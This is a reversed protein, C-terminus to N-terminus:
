EKEKKFYKSHLVKGVWDINIIVGYRCSYRRHHLLRKVLPCEHGYCVGYKDTYKSTPQVYYECKVDREIM